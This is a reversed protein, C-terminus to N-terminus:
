VTLQLYDVTPFDRNKIYIYEFLQEQNLHRHLGAGKMLLSEPALMQDCSYM